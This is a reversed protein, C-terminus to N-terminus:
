IYKKLFANIHIMIQEKDYFTRYNHIIKDLTNSSIRSRDFNKIIELFTNYRLNHDSDLDYTDDCNFEEHFNEFEQSSLTKTTGPMGFPIFM